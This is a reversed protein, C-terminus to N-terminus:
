HGLALQWHYSKKLWVSVLHKSTHVLMRCFGCGCRVKSASVLYHERYAGLGTVAAEHRRFWWVVEGSRADLVSLWGGRTGAGCWSRTCCLASVVVGAAGPGVQLAM